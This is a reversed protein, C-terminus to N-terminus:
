SFPYDGTGKGATFVAPKKKEEASNPMCFCPKRQAANGPTILYVSCGAPLEGFSAM